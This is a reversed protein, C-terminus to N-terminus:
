RRPRLRRCSASARRGPPATPPAISPGPAPCHQARWERRAAPASASRGAPADPGPDAAATGASPRARRPRRPAPEGSEPLPRPGRRASVRAAPTRFRPPPRVRVGNQVVHAVNDAGHGDVQRQRPRRPSRLGRREGVGPVRQRNQHWEGGRRHIRDRNRGGDGAPDGPQGGCRLGGPRRGGQDVVLRSHHRQQLRSQTAHAGVNREGRRRRRGVPQGLRDACRQQIEGLATKLEGLRRRVPPHPAVPLRLQGRRVPRLRRHDRDDRRGPRTRLRRPVAPRGCGRTLRRVDHDASGDVGREVGFLPRHLAGDLTVDIRRGITRQNGRHTRQHGAAAGLVRGARDLGPHGPRRVHATLREGRHQTAPEGVGPEQHEVRARQAAQIPNLHDDDVAGRQATIM